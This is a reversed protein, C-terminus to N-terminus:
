NLSPGPFINCKPSGSKFFKERAKEKEKFSTVFTIYKEISEKERKANM